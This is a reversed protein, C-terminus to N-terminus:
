LERRNGKTFTDAVKAGSPTAALMHVLFTRSQLIARLTSSPRRINFTVIPHPTLTLIMFSSLTVGRFHQSPDQSAEPSVTTASPAPVTSSTLVVVSHPVSRM